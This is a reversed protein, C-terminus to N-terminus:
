TITKFMILDPIYALLYIDNKEEEISKRNKKRISKEFWHPFTAYLVPSSLFRLPSWLIKLLLIAYSHLLCGRSRIYQKSFTKSLGYFILICFIRKWEPLGCVVDAYWFRVYNFIHLSIFLTQLLTFVAHYFDDLSLIDCPVTWM